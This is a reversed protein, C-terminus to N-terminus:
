AGTRLDIDVALPAVVRGGKRATQVRQLEHLARYFGREIHAEYRRFKDHVERREFDAATAEGLTVLDNFDRALPDVLGGHDVERKWIARIMENEVRLARRLRWAAAAVREALLMELAGVPRLDVIVALQFKRFDRDKEGPVVMKQSTLGHSIANGSVRSRGEPTVPGTSKKANERNAMLQKRSVM